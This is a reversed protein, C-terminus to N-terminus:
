RVYCLRQSRTMTAVVQPQGFKEDLQERGHRVDVVLVGDLCDEVTKLYTSVPYHFGWSMLSLVLRAKDPAGEIIDSPEVGNAELMERTAAMSNYPEMRERFGYRGSGTGTGDILHIRCGGYHRYLLADIGAVGCGIDLIAGTHGPLYPRLMEFDEAISAGYDAVGPRQMALYPRAAEPVVIM